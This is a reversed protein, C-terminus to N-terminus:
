STGVFAYKALNREIREAPPASQDVDFTKGTLQEYIEIYRRSLEAIMDQPADPLM